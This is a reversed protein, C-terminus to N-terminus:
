HSKFYNIIDDSEYMRVDKEEIYLFPIQTKGGLDLLRQRERPDTVNRLEVSVGMKDLANKVKVCYPCYDSVFLEIM